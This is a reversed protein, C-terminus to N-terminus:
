PLRQSPDIAPVLVRKVYTVGNQTFTGSFLYAPEYFSRDGGLALAYVLEASTLRVTPRPKSGPPATPSLALASRVAQDSSMIPYNATDLNLPLPGAAQYVQGGRLDVELGYREGFGDVLHAPGYAPMDFQRLYRVRTVDGSQAVVFSWTPLLNHAGLFANATDTPTAGAAPLHSPSLLIAYFPERVPSRNSGIVELTFTDGFYLGLTGQGLQGGQPHAGLAAAFQDADAMSPEAYRYVPASSVHINLQGAWVLNVLGVYTDSPATLAQSPTAAKPLENTAAPVPLRGFGGSAGNYYAGGQRGQSLSTASSGGANHGVYSILGIGIVLVLLVAVAAAPAAPVQRIGGALGAFFARLPQWWPRRAQVKSWLEDEFGRRPRTTQFADDLQRQLAQLELDEDDSM